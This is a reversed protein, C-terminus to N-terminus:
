TYYLWHVTYQHYHTNWHEMNKDEHTNKVSLFIKVTEGHM